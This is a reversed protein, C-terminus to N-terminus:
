KKIKLEEPNVNFKEAIQDITVELIKPEEIETPIDITTSAYYSSNTELQFDYPGTIFVYSNGFKGLIMRKGFSPLEMLRPFKKEEIESISNIVTCFSHYTMSVENHRIGYYAGISDINYGSHPYNKDFWAKVEAQNDTTIKISFDKM